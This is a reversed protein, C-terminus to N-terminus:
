FNHNLIPSDLFEPPTREEDNVPNLYNDVYEVYSLYKFDNSTIGDKFETPAIFKKGSPTFFGKLRGIRIYLDFLEYDVDNPEWIKFNYKPETRWGVSSFNCLLDIKIDPYNFSVAKAGAIVQYLHSDYFQKQEKESMNTKFDILAIKKVKSKIKNEVIKPQGKKEGRQWIGDEVLEVTVEEVTVEALLDLTLAYSEGDIPESLIMAESLIPKVNYDEVWKLFSLMSKNASETSSGSEVAINRASDLVEVPVSRKVLWESYCIHLATGFNSTNSLIKSWDEANDIKWQTLYTSTPLVLSLLSTIGIATRTRRVGNEYEFYYYFRNESNDDYRNLTIAPPPLLSFEAWSTSSKDINM